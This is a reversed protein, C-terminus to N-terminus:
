TFFELLNVAHSVAMPYKSVSLVLKVPLTFINPSVGMKSCSKPITICSTLTISIVTLM